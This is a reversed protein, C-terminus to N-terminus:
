KTPKGKRLQRLAANIAASENKLLITRAKSSDVDAVSIVKAHELLEIIKLSKTYPLGFQETLNLAYPKGSQIIFQAAAIVHSKPLPNGFADRYMKQQNVKFPNSLKM